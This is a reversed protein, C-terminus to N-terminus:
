RKIVNLSLNITSQSIQRNTITIKENINPQNRIVSTRCQKINPTPNQKNAPM